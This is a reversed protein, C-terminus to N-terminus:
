QGEKQQEDLGGNRLEPGHIGGDFAEIGLNGRETDGAPEAPVAEVAKV